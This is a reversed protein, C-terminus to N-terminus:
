SANRCKIRDLPFDIRLLKSNQNGEIRGVLKTGLLKYIVRQPFDHELNEFVVENQTSNKLKFATEVKNEHPRAVFFIGDTNQEIRMFEFGVTKGNKVTRGMGLISTGAPSMWQESIFLGKGPEKHEWCGAMGDFDALETFSNKQANSILALSLILFIFLISKM